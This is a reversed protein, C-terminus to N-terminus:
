QGARADSAGTGGEGLSAEPGGEPSSGQEVGERHEGPLEEGDPDGPPGYQEHGHSKFNMELFLKDFFKATIRIVACRRLISEFNTDDIEDFTFLKNLEIRKTSNSYTRSRIILMTLTSEKFYFLFKRVSDSPQLSTAVKSEALQTPM